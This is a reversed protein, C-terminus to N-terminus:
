LQWNCAETLPAIAAELGRLDFLATIRTGDYPTVAIRLREAEAMQRLLGGAWEPTFTAEVDASVPWDQTAEAADDLALTVRKTATTGEAGDTGLYSHWRVFMQTTNARCRAVLEVPDGFASAGSLAALRLAIMPTGDADPSTDLRWSNGDQALIGFAPPIADYCDLRDLRGQLGACASVASELDQALAACPLLAILGARIM